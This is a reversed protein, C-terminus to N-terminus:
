RGHYLREALIDPMGADIIKQAAKDVDYELRHIQVKDEEDDYIAVSAKPNEDRPQGVSGVNILVKEFGNMDIEQQMSYSVAPGSFFTIPVHSHGLFCVRTKLTELSLHADYSTQIYDFMDPFNLSGHVLTIKENYVNVLKITNLWELWKQGLAERTWLVAQKAYSNFFEVDLKGAVAYDHNGAVVPVNLDNIIEVCEVPNAGYGVIDGVSLFQKVGQGEAFEIVTQLAELNAHIDGLVAYKM